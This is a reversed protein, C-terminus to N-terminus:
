RVFYSSTSMLSDIGYGISTLMSAFFGFNESTAPSQCFTKGVDFPTVVEWYMPHEDGMFGSTWFFELDPAIVSGGGSGSDNIEVLPIAYSNLSFCHNVIILM